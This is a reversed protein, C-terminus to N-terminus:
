YKGILKMIWRHVSHYTLEPTLYMVACTGSCINMGHQKALALAEPTERQMHIWVNKIGAAAAREIWARTESKPVELVLAEVKQPLGELDPFTRDGDIEDVSPDVPFVVKKSKKLGRYTLLPFNKKVTHGVVAFSDHEWFMEFSSTM